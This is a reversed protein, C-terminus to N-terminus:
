GADLASIITSRMPEVPLDEHRFWLRTPIVESDLQMWGVVRSLDFRGGSWFGDEARGHAVRRGSRPIKDWREVYTGLLALDVLREHATDETLVLIVNEGKPMFQVYARELLRGVRSVLTPTCQAVAVVARNTALPTTIRVSGAPHGELDRHLLEEGLRAETVFERAAAAFRALEPDKLGPRWDVEVLFPRKVQEISRLFSPLAPRDVAESHLCKVHLFFKKDEVTVEFDCTRGNPTPLEIELDCGAGLLRRAVRAEALAGSAGMPGDSVSELRRRIQRGACGGGAPLDGWASLEAQLRSEIDNRERTLGAGGEWSHTRLLTADLDDEELYPDVKESSEKM